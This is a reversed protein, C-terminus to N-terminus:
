VSEEKDARDERTSDGNIEDEKAYNPLHKKPSVDLMIRELLEEDSLINLQNVKQHVEVKDIAKLGVRDLVSNAAQLKIKEDASDMAGLLVGVAKVSGARMYGKCANIIEMGLEDTVEKFSQRKCLNKISAPQVGMIDAIQRYTAGQMYYAAIKHLIGPRDLRDAEEIIDDTAEVEVHSLDGLLEMIDTSFNTLTNNGGM